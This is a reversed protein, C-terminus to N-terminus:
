RKGKVGYLFMEVVKATQSTLPRRDGSFVRYFMASRCLGFIATASAEPDKPEVVGHKACLRLIRVMREMNRAFKQMLMGCSRSGCGPFRGAGFQSLFDQNEEFYALITRVTASLLAEGRLGSAAAQDLLEGLQDVLDAFAASFLEDKNKFYLFLTGKAVGAEGAVDDLVVDQFGREILLKRAAGLILGKKADAAALTAIM